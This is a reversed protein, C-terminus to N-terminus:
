MEFIKQNNLLIMTMDLALAGQEKLLQVIQALQLSQKTPQQVQDSNKIKRAGKDRTLKDIQSLDALQQVEDSNRIKKADEDRTSKDNTVSSLEKTKLRRQKNNNITM